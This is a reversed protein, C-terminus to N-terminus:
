SVVKHMVLTKKADKSLRDLQHLLFLDAVTVHVSHDCLLLFAQAARGARGQAACPCVSLCVSLCVSPCSQRTIPVKRESM